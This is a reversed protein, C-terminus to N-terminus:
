IKYLFFNCNLMLDYHSQLQLSVPTDVDIALPKGFFHCLTCFNIKNQDNSSLVSYDVSFKNKLDQQGGHRCESSKQETKSPITQAHYVM